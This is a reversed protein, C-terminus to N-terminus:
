RSTRGCMLKTANVDMFYCLKTVCVCRINFLTTYVDYAAALVYLRKHPHSAELTAVRGVKQLLHQRLVVAATHLEQAIHM